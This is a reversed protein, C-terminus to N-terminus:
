DSGGDSSVIGRLSSWDHHSRRRHESDSDSDLAHLPASSPPSVQPPSLRNSSAARRKRRGMGTIINGQDLAALEADDERKMKVHRCKELTPKGKVGLTELEHQLRNLKARRSTCGEFLQQYRRRVGCAVLYRKLRQIAPHDENNAPVKGNGEGKRKTGKKHASKQIMTRTNTKGKKQPHRRKKSSDDSEALGDSESEEKGSEKEEAGSDMGSELSSESKCQEQMELTDEEEESINKSKGGQSEEEAASDSEVDQPQKLEQSKENGVKESDSGSEADQPQKLEQSKENGVKESDSGSEVDQPQKLEQSKENGVKESDSGSEADQPQKLEQSKENGVKESDSGSEADQPQKLEQSKENGVKESDSGSEVDQPQKLEQSKENEGKESDSGSNDIHHCKKRESEMNGGGVRRKKKQQHKSRTKSQERSESESETNSVVDNEDSADGESDGKHPRQPQNKKDRDGNLDDYEKNEEEESGTEIAKSRGRKPNRTKQRDTNHNEPPLIKTSRESSSDNESSNSQLSKRKKVVKPVKKEAKEGRDDRVRKGARGQLKGAGEKSCGDGADKRGKGVVKALPADDSSDGQQELLIRKVMKKLIDRESTSLEEHGIHVLYKDRVSKQSLCSIDKTQGLLNRVFKEMIKTNAM